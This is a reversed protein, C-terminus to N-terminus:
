SETDFSSYGTRVLDVVVMIPAIPARFIHSRHAFSDRSTKQSHPDRGHAQGERGSCCSGVVDHLGVRNQPDTEYDRRNAFEGVSAAPTCAAEAESATIWPVSVM